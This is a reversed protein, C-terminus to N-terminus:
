AHTIREAVHAAHRTPSHRRIAIGDGRPGAGRPRHVVAPEVELAAGSEIEKVLIRRSVRYFVGRGSLGPARGWNLPPLRAAPSQLGGNCANRTAREASRAAKPRAACVVQAIPAADASDWGRPM